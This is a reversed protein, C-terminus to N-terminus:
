YVFPILRRTQARYDGYEKGLATMLMDEETQIRYHYATFMAVATIGISIWNTMALAAGLFILLVGVYGPHRIFRYPGERVIHQNETHRLTRTYFQGLTKFAWVRVALGLLGLSIGLWGVIVSFPLTGIQLYNFIPAALLGFGSLLFAIGILSTSGRDSPGRELSKAEQGIRMRKEIVFFVV